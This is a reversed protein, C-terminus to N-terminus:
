LPTHSRFINNKTRQEKSGAEQKRSGERMFIGALVRNSTAILRSRQEAVEVKDARESCPINTSWM